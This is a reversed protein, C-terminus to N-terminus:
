ALRTIKVWCNVANTLSKMFVRMFKGGTPSLDARANQTVANVATIQYTANTPTIYFADADTDAEQIDLEFAGPAGDFHLEVCVMPPPMGEFGPQLNVAISSQGAIIAEVAVNGENIPLQTAGAKLKGFVYASEGKQLAIPSVNSAVPVIANPTGPYLSM